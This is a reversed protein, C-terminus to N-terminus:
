DDLINYNLIQEWNNASVLLWGDRENNREKEREKKKKRRQKDGEEEQRQGIAGWRWNLGRPVSLASAEALPTPSCLVAFGRPLTKDPKSNPFVHATIIIITIIYM